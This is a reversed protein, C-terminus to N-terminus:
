RYTSRSIWGGAPGIDLRLVDNGTQRTLAHLVVCIQEQIQGIVAPKALSGSLPLLRGVGNEAGHLVTQWHDAAGVVSQGAPNICVTPQPLDQLRFTTVNVRRPEHDCFDRQRGGSLFALQSEIM